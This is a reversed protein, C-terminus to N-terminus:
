GSLYHCDSRREDRRDLYQLRWYEMQVFMRGLVDGSWQMGFPKFLLYKDDNETIAESILLGAMATTNLGHGGFATAVWFGNKIKAIIPMQHGAYGMLGSWAREIKIDGLRPYTKTIDMKLFQALREPQSRMTTIRGGWILRRQDGTGITRYYDGSRRTDAICGTFPIIQDLIAPTPASSVVYTAVPVMSGNLQPYPGGYASTCLVVNDASISGDATNILWRGPNSPYQKVIGLCRSNEFIRVKRDNLDDALAYAYKLPDIHFADRDLLAAHYCKSRVYEDIDTQKIYDLSVNLKQQYFEQIDVLEQVNHHRLLKLWGKGLVVDNCGLETITKSVYDRGRESQRYLEIADNWGAKEAISPLSRAFGSAVFGGNRGSAGWGVSEAELVVVDHGKRALERATTLGAYGAGIICTQTSVRDRLDPFEIHKGLTSAYHSDIHM